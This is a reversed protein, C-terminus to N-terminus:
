QVRLVSFYKQLEFKGKSEFYALNQPVKERIHANTLM